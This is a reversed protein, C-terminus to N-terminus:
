GARRVTAPQPTPMPWAASPSRTRHDARWSAFPKQNLTHWQVEMPCTRGLAPAHCVEFLTKLSAAPGFLKPTRMTLRGRIQLPFSKGNVWCFPKEFIPCSQDILNGEDGYKMPSVPGLKERRTSELSHALHKDGMNM